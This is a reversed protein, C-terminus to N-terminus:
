VNVSGTFGVSRCLECIVPGNSTHQVGEAEHCAECLNEVYDEAPEFTDAFAKPKCPYFEGQTGRIIWDGRGAMMTGELTPISLDGRELNGWPVFKAGPIDFKEFLAVAGGPTGDFQIADIVVPKKRYKMPTM